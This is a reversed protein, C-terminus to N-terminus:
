VHGSTGYFMQLYVNRCRDAAADKRWLGSLGGDIQALPVFYASFESTKELDPFRDDETRWEKAWVLNGTDEDVLEPQRQYLAAVAFRCFTDTGQQATLSTRGGPRRMRVYFRGVAIYKDWMEEGAAYKVQMYYSAREQERTYLLSSLRRNNNIVACDHVWPDLIEELKKYDALQTSNTEIVELVAKLDAGSWGEFFHALTEMSNEFEAFTAKLAATILQWQEQTPRKGLFQLFQGGKQQGPDTEQRDISCLNIEQEKKLRKQDIIRTQQPHSRRMEASQKPAQM